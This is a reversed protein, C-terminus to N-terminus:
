EGLFKLQSEALADRVGKGFPTEVFEETIETEIINAIYASVRMRLDVDSPLDPMVSAIADILTDRLARLGRIQGELYEKDDNNM